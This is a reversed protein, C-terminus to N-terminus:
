EEEDDEDDSEFEIEEEEKYLIQKCNGCDHCLFMGTYQLDNAVCICTKNCQNKCERAM